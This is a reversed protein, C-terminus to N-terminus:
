GSLETQIPIVQADATTLDIGQAQATAILANVRQVITEQWKENSMIEIVKRPNKNELLNIFWIMLRFPFGTNAIIRRSIDAVENDRARIAGDWQSPQLALLQEAFALAADRAQNIGYSVVTEDVYWAWRDLFGILPSAEAIEKQVVDILTILINNLRFFDRKLSESLNGNAIEATAIGLDLAIHVNMGLLLHQLILMTKNDFQEFSATWADSPRGIQQQFTDYAVFYRNAFTTDLQRMRENDEFFGENCKDRVVLTVMRYLTAFYGARSEKTMSDRIIDDMISVVEDINNAVVAM